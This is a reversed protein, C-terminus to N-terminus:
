AEYLAEAVEPLALRELHAKDARGTADDWHMARYYERVFGAADLTTNRFPGAKQPPDGYLRPHPRFDRAPNLGERVNFAHRLQHIREGAELYADASVSWGTAANMWEVLPLPGGVQTGFFCAGTADVLMKYCSDVALMEGKGEPKGKGRKFAIPPLKPARTFQKELVQLELYTFSSITHHGPTPECTYTALYGPDFKADHMPVEIGGSHVAFRDAGKGIREAAVKVGDALLDGIGERAIIREVLSVIAEAGGWSLELGDTDATTILGEEFCEIAFAVTAGTSITDIGARNCLDNLVMLSGLDDNLLLAGFACLTEYEPKHMREIPRAGRDYKVIGGCRLPCSFCGYKEIEHAIVAEAGLKQSRSLPFDVVSGAWNKIPSDGSEASMATLAPTGFRALLLRWLDSPQRTMGPLLRTLKGTAGLLTDGLLRNMPSDTSIAAKFDKSLQKMREKDSVGIRARGTAVVAKLGKSGMVGGLGGRAAIRGDDNCIGAMFSKREGAPGICAVQCRPGHLDKLQRETEGTDLGWLEAADRVEVGDAGLLLYVPKDSVGRVFLGDIRCRKLFPSFYGGCNADGWGGTAPSKGAVMFRGTFLSGTDTLLGPVFGLVNDPGMPDAGAPIRDWLVKAALGIGGLFREYLADPLHEYESTGASLDVHLIRGWYARSQDLDRPETM